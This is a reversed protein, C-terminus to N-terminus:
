RPSVVTGDLHFVKELSHKMDSLFLSEVLVVTFLSRRYM